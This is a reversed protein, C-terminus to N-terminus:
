KCFEGQMPTSCESCKFETCPTGMQHPIEKGCKPCTCVKSGLPRGAVNGGARPRINGGRRGTMPGAGQPGTRDGRPMIYDGGQIRISKGKIIAKSLKYRGTKLIRLFTTRSVQMKKAAQEQDLGDLDKLRLAEVEDFGLIEPTLGRLRVGAPKFYTVNPQFSIIRKIRPRPM